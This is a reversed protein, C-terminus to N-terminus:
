AALPLTQDKDAVNHVHCRNLTRIRINRNAIVYSGRKCGLNSSISKRLKRLFSRQKCYRM